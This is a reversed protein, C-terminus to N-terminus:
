KIEIEIPTKFSFYSPRSIKVELGPIASWLERLHDMLEVETQRSSGPILSINLQGLNEREQNLSVGMQTSTGANTFIRDIREDQIALERMKKLIDDSIEIPTGSTLKIDIILEGQSMEPILETGIFRYGIATIGLLVVAVIITMLRHELAWRLNQPYYKVLAKFLKDFIWFVPLLLGRLIRGSSIILNKILKFIFVLSNELLALFKNPAKVEEIHAVDDEVDSYKLSKLMPILTLAVFLSAILSYTVTLAQDTFLQGAIGQVFIIPVFVFITTLTSATVAKGVESTGILASKHPAMGKNSYRDISELVVIANDVLMGIGLALGGLSMINLSVGSIYMLFFTMIVSLPIALSIIVTSLVNQLFFYLVIMALLGGIVASWLVDDISQKIFRSQDTITEIKQKSGTGALDEKIKILREKVLKAVNVTNADGEKFISIEVSEQGEIRTIVKREKFSIFASGIDKLYINASNKHVIVIDNIEDVTLFQNLTRVIHEIEGEILTGGTLNVNEQALRNIVLDMSIDLVSLKGQNVEVHIEEELGGSVQVSAVGEISELEQKINREAFLRLAILNDDGFFVVRIIPELAPDFRLLIPQEADRPLFVLDLKERVDLSAFDMNADWDFEIIVDSIGPRSVSSVRVVGSVVGVAEEIPKSILNEVEAPASGPYETRVTLSPYSIDPLLDLRLRNFSILGFIIAALFIMFITVRRHIAFNVIKMSDSVKKNYGVM